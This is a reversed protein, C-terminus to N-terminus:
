PGDISVFYFSIPLPSKQTISYEFKGSEPLKLDYKKDGKCSIIIIENSVTIEHIEDFNSIVM